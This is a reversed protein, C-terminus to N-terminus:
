NFIKGTINKGISHYTLNNQKLYLLIGEIPIFHVNSIALISLHTLPIIAALSINETQYSLLHSKQLTFFYSM